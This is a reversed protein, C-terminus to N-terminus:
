EVENELFIDGQRLISVKDGDVKVITSPKNKEIRGGDVVLDVGILGGGDAEYLQPEGTRNASTTTVPRGLLRVMETCFPLDSFRISVFKEGPNWFDPLFNSKQVVISLPGPWYKKALELAKESFNGCKQAMELSDVLISVPKDLSMQKIKYVKDLVEKNFVDAALGYCTETPHMVVGGSRLVQVVSEAAGHDHIYVIEM